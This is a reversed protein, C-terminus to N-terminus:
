LLCVQVNLHEEDYAQETHREQSLGVLFLDNTLCNHLIKTWMLVLYFDFLVAHLYQISLPLNHKM